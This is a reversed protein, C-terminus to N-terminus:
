IRIGSSQKPKEARMMQSALSVKIKERQDEPLHEVMGEIKEKLAPNQDLKSLIGQNMKERREENKVENLVLARAMREPPMAQIRKWHEPNNQIYADIKANVESNERFQPTANEGAPSSNSKKIM